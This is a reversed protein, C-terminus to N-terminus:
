KKGDNNEEGGPIIVWTETRGGYRRSMGRKRWEEEERRELV